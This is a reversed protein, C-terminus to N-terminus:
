PKPAGKGGVGFEYVLRGGLWGGVAMLLFGVVAGAAAIQQATAHDIMTQASTSLLLAILFCLWVGAMVILHWSAVRMAKSDEDITRLELLGAVMAFVAMVLGAGNALKAFEFASQDPGAVAVVYAFAAVTWFAVPFHVLAPHVPHGWIRM